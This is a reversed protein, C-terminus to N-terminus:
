LRASRRIQDIRKTSLGTLEALRTPTIGAGHADRIVRDREADAEDARAHAARSRRVATSVDRELAAITPAPARVTVM